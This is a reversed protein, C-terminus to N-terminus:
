KATGGAFFPLEQQDMDEGGNPATMTKKKLWETPTHMCAHQTVETTDSEACGQPSCGVLNWLVTM